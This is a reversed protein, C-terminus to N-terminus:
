YKNYIRVDTGNAWGEFQSNFVYYWMTGSRDRMEKTAFIVSDKRMTATIKASGSPQARCPARDRVVVGGTQMEYTRISSNGTKTRVVTDTPKKPELEPFNPENVAELAPPLEAILDKGAFYGIGYRVGAVASVLFVMAIISRKIIKKKSDRNKRLKKFELELRMRSETSNTPNYQRTYGAPRAPTVTMTRDYEQRRLPDILCEYAEAAEGLMAAEAADHAALQKRAEYADTIDSASASNSVGLIFYYNKVM